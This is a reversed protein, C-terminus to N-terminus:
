RSRKAGQDGVRSQYTERSNRDIMMMNCSFGIPRMAAKNAPTATIANPPTTRLQAHDLKLGEAQCAAFAPGSAMALCGALLAVRRFVPRLSFIVHMFMHAKQSKIFDSSNNQRKAFFETGSCNWIFYKKVQMSLTKKMNLDQCILVNRLFVRKIM